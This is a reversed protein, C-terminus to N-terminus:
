YIFHFNFVTHNMRVEVRSKHELLYEVFALRNTMVALHLPTRGEDDQHNIDIKEDFRTPDVLLKVVDPINRSADLSYIQSSQPPEKQHSWIPNSQAAVHLVNEGNGGLINLDLRPENLHVLLTRSVSVANTHNITM